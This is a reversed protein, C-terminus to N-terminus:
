SRSPLMRLNNHLQMRARAFEARAKRYEELAAERMREFRSRKETDSQRLEMEIDRLKQQTSRVADRRDLMKRMLGALRARPPESQENEDVGALPEDELLEIEDKVKERAM